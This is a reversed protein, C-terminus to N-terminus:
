KGLSSITDQGSITVNSSIIALMGPKCLTAGLRCNDVLISSALTVYSTSSTTNSKDNEHQAYNRKGDDQPGCLPGRPDLGEHDVFSVPQFIEPHDRRSLDSRVM